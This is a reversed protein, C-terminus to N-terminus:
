GKKSCSGNYAVSLVLLVAGVVYLFTFSSVQAIFGGVFLAIGIGGDWAVFFSSNALGRKEPGAMNIFLTQYAPMLLGTGLGYILGTALLAASGPFCILTILSIFCLMTGGNIVFATRGKDIFYGAILRSFVMGVALLCFFLGVNITIATEKAFIAIYNLVIGYTFSTGALSIGVKVGQPLYIKEWLKVKTATKKAPAKGSVPILLSLLGGAGSLAVAACFVATAGFAEYLMVGFMPGLAMPVANTLGFFGIGAGMRDQPIMDTAVTVSATNAIGFVFGHIFRWFGFLLLSTIWLYGWFVLAYILACVLFVTKRSYTDVLHGSWPRVALASLVYISLLVGTTGKDAHLDQLLYLPLIPILM